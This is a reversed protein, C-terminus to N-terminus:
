EGGTRSDFISSGPDPHSQGYIENFERISKRLHERTTWVGTLWNENKLRSFDSIGSEAYRNMPTGEFFNRARCFCTWALVDACQLGVWERRSGFSYHGKLSGPAVSEEMELVRDIEREVQRPASDFVYKLRNRYESDGAWKWIFRLLRRIAYVYHDNAWYIKQDAPIEGDFEKKTVAYAFARLGYKTVIQRTRAFAAEVKAEDWNSFQSKPNKSACESAHFDRIGYKDCFNKWECKLAPIRVAPIIIASALAIRQSPSTGSDDFYVHFM